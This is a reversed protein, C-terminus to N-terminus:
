SLIINHKIRFFKWLEKLKPDKDLSKDFQKKYKKILDLVKNTYLVDLDLYFIKILKADVHQQFTTIIDKDCNNYLVEKPTGKIKTDFYEKNVRYKIHTQQNETLVKGSDIQTKFSLLMSDKPYKSFLEDLYSLVRGYHEDIVATTKVKSCSSTVVVTAKNGLIVKNRKFEKDLDIGRIYATDDPHLPCYKIEEWFPTFWKINHKELTILKDYVDKNDKRWLIMAHFDKISKDLKNFNKVEGVSLDLMHGVCTSGVIILEKTDKNMLKYEYRIRRNCSDVQCKNSISKTPSLNNDVMGVIILKNNQFAKLRQLADSYKIRSSSLRRLKGKKRLKSIISTDRMGMM